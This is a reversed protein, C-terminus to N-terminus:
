RLFQNAARQSYKCRILVFECRAFLCQSNKKILHLYECRVAFWNKAIVPFSAKPQVITAAINKTISSDYLEYNINHNFELEM